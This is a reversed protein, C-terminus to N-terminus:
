FELNFKPSVAKEKLFKILNSIEHNEQCMMSTIEDDNNLYNKEACFDMNFKSMKKKMEIESSSKLLRRSSKPLSDMSERSMYSNSISSNDGSTIFLSEISKFIKHHSHKNIMTSFMTSANSKKTKYDSVKLEEESDKTYDFYSDKMKSLQMDDILKNDNKPIEHLSKSFNAKIWKDILISSIPIRKEPDKATM